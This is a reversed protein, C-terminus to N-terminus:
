SLPLRVTGFIDEMQSIQHNQLDLLDRMKKNADHCHKNIQEVTLGTKEM